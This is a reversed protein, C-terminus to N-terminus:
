VLTLRGAAIAAEEDLDLTHLNVAWILVIPCVLRSKARGGTSM